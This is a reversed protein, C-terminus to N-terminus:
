EFVVSATFTFLLSKFYVGCDCYALFFGSFPSIQVVFQIFDVPVDAFMVATGVYVLYGMKVTM